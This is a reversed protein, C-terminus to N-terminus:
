PRQLSQALAAAVQSDPHDRLARAAIERAEDTRGLARLTEAELVWVSLNIPDLAKAQAVIRMAQAGDGAKIWYRGLNLLPEVAGPAAMAAQQFARLGEDTRGTEMYLVGLNTFLQSGSAGLDRALEYETSAEGFRGQSALAAGRNEHHRPENPEADAASRFLTEADDYRGEAFRVSGMASLAQPDGPQTELARQLFGEAEIIDGRDVLLAALNVLADAMGPETRLAERLLSEARATEGDSILAGALNNLLQPTREGAELAARFMQRAPATLDREAFASALEQFDRSPESVVWHGDFPLAEGEGAEMDRLIDEADVTGRYVKRILGSGDVLFSTPIALERRRDFLRENLISYSERTRPDAIAVPFGLGMEAAVGAVTGAADPEDVSVAIVGAGATRLKAEASQLGALEVRCPPCWTAWFNILVPRARVDNLRVLRDPNGAEPLTFEPAPVPVALWTGPTADQSTAGAREGKSAETPTRRGPSFSGSGESVLISGDQPPDAITQVAGGPWRVRLQRVREGQQLGFSAERSRQSLYGSGSAIERMLTRRDTILSVRGGVGDRNSKFGRLRVVLRRAGAAGMENRYALLQRGNRNKVILDQDGDDDIDLPVFARGDAKIDLGSVFSVDDFRGDGLNRYCLNRERGSWSGDSRILINIARWADGYKKSGEARLPSQSM